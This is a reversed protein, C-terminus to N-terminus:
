RVPSASNSPNPSPVVHCFTWFTSGQGYLVVTKTRGVAVFWGKRRSLDSGCGCPQVLGSGSPDTLGIRELSTGFSSALLCFGSAEGVRKNSSCTEVFDGDQIQKLLRSNKLFARLYTLGLIFLRNLCFWAM